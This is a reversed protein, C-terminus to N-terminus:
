ASDPKAALRRLRYMRLRGFQPGASQTAYRRREEDGAALAIDKAIRGPADM